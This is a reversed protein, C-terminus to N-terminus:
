KGGFLEVPRGPGDHLPELDLNLAKLAQIFQARADREIAAAPHPKPQDFRDRIVPGGDAAIAERASACREWAEAAATLLSVGALDVIGYEDRLETWWAAAPASLHKPPATKKM